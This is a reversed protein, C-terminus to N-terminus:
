RTEAISERLAFDHRQTSFPKGRRKESGSAQCLRMDRVDLTSNM